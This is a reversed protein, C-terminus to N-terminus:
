KIKSNWEFQLIDSRVFLFSEGSETTIRVNGLKYTENDITVRDFTKRGNELTIAVNYLGEFTAEPEVSKRFLFAKSM